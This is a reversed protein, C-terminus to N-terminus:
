QSILPYTRGVIMGEGDGTTTPQKGAALTQALVEICEVM